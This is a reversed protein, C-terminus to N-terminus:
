DTRMHLADPVVGRSMRKSFYYVRKLHELMDVEITYAALRNPEEAVLRRAAHLAAHGARRNVQRKLDIVRIAAEENKQTVAQVASDLGGLVLEHFEAIVAVTADSIRVGEDIRGCGLGVLNTEVVDGISELNNAADILRLFDETQSETLPTQSIKGLYTVVHGHLTDVADDMRVIAALQERTGRTMAPLIAVLMERVLDGMHLIELRARDLALSPTRLLEVDLYRARIAEEEAAPRDKVLHNVLRAFQPVFGIFILTNAINFVTHANAIQRPTDAALRDLGTLGTSAPSMSAVLGALQDIFPLWILVGALNFVIHVTAARIAERPKGIAALLATVCTGVNAGFVLAIGAPLTVFGQAAMTIVVGTTASSSQVVATFVAGALIGLGPEEMRVMWELFPPHTRLPAMADGMVMMGLFVLGLGLILAGNQRVPEKKGFFMLGFGMAVLLLSYETVHFAVIQGTITTGINAGMIVGISQAMTMLGASVFGVVLVTTVSSSQIVATVLAGTVAGTFRNTTLKQLVTRMRDGAVAKLADAMMDLGLLFLALGGLLGMALVFSSFDQAQSASTVTM